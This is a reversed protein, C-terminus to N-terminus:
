CGVHLYYGSKPPEKHLNNKWMHVSM